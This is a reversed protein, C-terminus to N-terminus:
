MGSMLKVVELICNDNKLPTLCVLIIFYHMVHEEKFVTLYKVYKGLTTTM